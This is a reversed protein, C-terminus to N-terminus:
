NKRRQQFNTKMHQRSLALPIALTLPNRLKMSLM